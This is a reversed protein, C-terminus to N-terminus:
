PCGGVVSEPVAVMVPTPKMSTGCAVPAARFPISSWGTSPNADPLQM